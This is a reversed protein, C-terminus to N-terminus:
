PERLLRGFGAVPEVVLPDSEVAVPEFEEHLKLQELLAGRLEADDEVMLVRKATKAQANAMTLAGNTEM